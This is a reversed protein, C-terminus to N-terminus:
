VRRYRFAVTHDVGLLVVAQRNHHTEVSIAKGQSSLESEERSLKALILLRLGKGLEVLSRLLNGVQSLGKSLKPLSRFNGVPRLM